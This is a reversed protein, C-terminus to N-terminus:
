NTIPRKKTALIVGLTLSWIELIKMFVELIDIWLFSVVYGLMTKTNIVIDKLFM